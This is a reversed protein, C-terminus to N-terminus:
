GNREIRYRENWENWENREYRENPRGGECYTVTQVIWM